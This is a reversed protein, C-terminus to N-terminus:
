NHLCFRELQLCFLELKPSWVIVLVLVSLLFRLWFKAGASTISEPFERTNKLCRWTLSRSTVSKPNEPGLVGNRAVHARHPRTVGKGRDSKYADVCHRPVSLARDRPGSEWAAFVGFCGCRFGGSPMARTNQLFIIVLVPKQRHQAGPADAGATTFFVFVSHFKMRCSIGMQIQIWSFPAPRLHPQVSKVPNQGNLGILTCETGKSVSSNLPDGSKLRLGHFRTFFQRVAGDVTLGREWPGYTFGHDSFRCSCLIRKQPIIKLNGWQFDIGMLNKATMKVCFRVVTDTRCLM